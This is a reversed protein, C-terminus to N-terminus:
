WDLSSHQSRHCTLHLQQLPFLMHVGFLSKKCHHQPHAKSLCQHHAADQIRLRRTWYEVYMAASGSALGLLYFNALSTRHLLM